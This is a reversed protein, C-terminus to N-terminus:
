SSGFELKLLVFLLYGTDDPLWGLRTIYEYWPFEQLLDQKRLFRHLFQVSKDVFQIDAIALEVKANQTGAKPYKFEDITDHRYVNGQVLLFGPFTSRILASKMLLKICYRLELMIGGFGRTDISYFRPYSGTLSKKCLSNQFVLRFTKESLVLSLITQGTITLICTEGMSM